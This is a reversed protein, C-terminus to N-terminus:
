AIAAAPLEFTGIPSVERDDEMFAVWLGLEAAREDRWAIEQPTYEDFYERDTDGDQLSLFGLLQAVNWREDFDNPSFFDDGKFIVEGDDFLVYAMRWKGDRRQHTHFIFLEFGDEHWKVFPARAGRLVDSEMGGCVVDVDRWVHPADCLAYRSGEQKFFCWDEGRMAGNLNEPSVFAFADGPKLDNFKM